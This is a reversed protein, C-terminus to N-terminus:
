GRRAAYARDTARCGALKKMLLALDHRTFKWRSPHPALTRSAKGRSRLLGTLFVRLDGALSGTDPVEPVARGTSCPM